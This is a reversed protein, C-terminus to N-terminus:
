FGVGFNLNGFWNLRGKKSGEMQKYENSQRTKLCWVVFVILNLAEIGALGVGAWFTFRMKTCTQSFDINQYDFKPDQHTCSWSLLDWSTEKTDWSGYYATVAVWVLLCISSVVITTVNGTKTARRMSKNFSAVVLLFSLMGAILAAGLLLLTPRLRLNEPWVPFSGSGDHFPNRANKTRNYSRFSDALVSTIVVCVVFSLMHLIVHTQYFFRYQRTNPTSTREQTKQAAQRHETLLMETDNHEM